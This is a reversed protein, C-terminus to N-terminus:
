LKLHIVLCPNANLLHEGAFDDPGSVTHTPLKHLHSDLQEVSLFFVSVQTLMIKPQNIVHQNILQQVIPIWIKMCKM